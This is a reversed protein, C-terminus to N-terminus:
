AFLAVQGGTHWFLVTADRPISGDRCKALLGAFAKATYTHDLFIAEATAVLRQATVSGDTPEGYGTGVFRDDIELQIARNLTGEPISLLLELGTIIGRVETEVAVPPDDASIGIVRTTLGSLACGALIGASTGGSSCAHVIVDPRVGQALMEGVGDLYGLAGHPTSAGLPVIVPHRGAARLRAAARDMAPRREPRSSVYEFTAGLHRNLLANASPPNPETGNVVIHCALGSFTAAAATARAHNSQPGGCTVITDAGDALVAPIVFRLKRVKNGGFGFPIADDRKVLIRQTLGTARRLRDMSDIPTPYHGLPAVPFQALRALATTQIAADLPATAM